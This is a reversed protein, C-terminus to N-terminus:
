FNIMWKPFTPVIDLTRDVSSIHTYWIPDLSICVLECEDSVGRGEQWTLYLTPGTLSMAFGSWPNIGWVLSQWSWPHQSWVPSPGPLVSINTVSHPEALILAISHLWVTSPGYGPCQLQVHTRTWGHDLDHHDTQVNGHHVICCNQTHGLSM